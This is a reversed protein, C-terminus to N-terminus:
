GAITTSTTARWCSCRRTLVFRAAHPHFPFRFLRLSIHFIIRIAIRYKPMEGNIGYVSLLSADTIKGVKEFQEAMALLFRRYLDRDTPIGIDGLLALYPAVPHILSSLKM